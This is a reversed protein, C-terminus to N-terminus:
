TKSHKSSFVTGASKFIAEFQALAFSYGEPLLKVLEKGRQDLLFFGEIQTQTLSEVLWGWDQELNFDALQEKEM